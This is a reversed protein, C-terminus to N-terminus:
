VYYSEKTFIHCVFLFLSIVSAVIKFWNMDTVNSVILWLLGCIMFYKKDSMTLERQRTNKLGHM